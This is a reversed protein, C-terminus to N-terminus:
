QQEKQQDDRARVSGIKRNVQNASSSRLERGIAGACSREDTDFALVQQKVNASIRKRPNISRANRRLFYCRDKKRM